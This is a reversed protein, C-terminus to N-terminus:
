SAKLAGKPLKVRRTLIELGLPLRCESLKVSDNPRIALQAEILVYDSM